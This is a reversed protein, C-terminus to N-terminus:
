RGGPFRDSGGVAALIHKRMAWKSALRHGRGLDRELRGHRDIVGLELPVNGAEV